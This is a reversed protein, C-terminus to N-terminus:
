STRRRRMLGMGFLGLGLLAMTGPEPVTGGRSYAIAGSLGGKINVSWDGSTNGALEFSIWDPEESSGFKFVLLDVSADVLWTGSESGNGTVTLISGGGSGTDEALWTYGM